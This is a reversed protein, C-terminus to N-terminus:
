NRFNIRFQLSFKKDKFLTYINRSSEDEKKNYFYEFIPFIEQKLFNYFDLGLYEIYKNDVIINKDSTKIKLVFAITTITNIKDAEKRHFISMTIGNGLSEKIQKKTKKNIKINNDYVGQKLKYQKKIIIKIEYKFNIKKIIIHEFFSNIQETKEEVWVNSINGRFQNAFTQFQIQKEENFQLEEYDMFELLLYPVSRFEDYSKIKFKKM